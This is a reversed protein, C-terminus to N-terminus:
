SVQLWTINCMEYAELSGTLRIGTTDDIYFSWGSTSVTDTEGSSGLTWGTAGTVGSSKNQAAMSGGGSGGDGEAITISVNSVGETIGYFLIKGVGDAM